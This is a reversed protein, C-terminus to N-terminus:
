AITIFYKKKGKKILDEKLKEIRKRLREDERLNNEFQIIAQSIRMPSRQFHRAVEAVKYGSLVRALYAVMSRGYAGERSRTVSYLRDRSVGTARSVEEAIVEIPIDYVAIEKDGREVGIGDIFSDEGLFRQDKVEYYKEQHGSNLAEWVFRRYRRRALSKRKGFQGLVFDEEVLGQRGEGLYSLHSTWPYGEPDTVVKARIPNLHVYRVLELLYADKDCLIAKYRGQFLHGVKGYRKNFYRTYRFLLSQMIKGLPTGEVGLLLHFHNKMLCYAYLHFPYRTKYESLYSLFAELDKRDLFIDQRQNGRSIV